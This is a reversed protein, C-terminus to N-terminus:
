FMCCCIFEFVSSNSIWFESKVFCGASSLVSRSGWVTETKWKPSLRATSCCKTIYIHTNEAESGWHRRMAAQKFTILRRYKMEVRGDGSNMEAFTGTLACTWRKVPIVTYNNGRQGWKIAYHLGSRQERGGGDLKSQTCFALSRRTMFRLHPLQDAAQHLVRLPQVWLLCFGSRPLSWARLCVRLCVGTATQCLIQHGGRM